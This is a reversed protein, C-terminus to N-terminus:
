QVSGGVGVEEPSETRRVTHGGGDGGSTTGVARLHSKGSHWCQAFHEIQVLDNRQGPHSCTPTPTPTPHPAFLSHIKPFTGRTSPQGCGVQLCGRRVVGRKMEELSERRVLTCIGGKPWLPSHRLHQTPRLTIHLNHSVGVASVPGERCIHSQQSFGLPRIQAPPSVEPSLVGLLGLFPHIPLRLGMSSSLGTYSSLIRVALALWVWPHPYANYTHGNMGGVFM